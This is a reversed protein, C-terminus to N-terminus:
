RSSRKIILEVIYKRSKMRKLYKERKIADSKNDFSEFYVIKWPIGNKTSQTGGENHKKIRKELDASYGIYYKDIKESYLIYTYFTSFM